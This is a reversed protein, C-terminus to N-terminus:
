GDAQGGNTRASWLQEHREQMAEIGEWKWGSHDEGFTWLQDSLWWLSWYLPRLLKSRKRVVGLLHWRNADHWRHWSPTPSLNNSLCRRGPAPIPIEWTRWRDGGSAQWRVVEFCYKTTGPNEPDEPCHRFTMTWYDRGFDSPRSYYDPGQMEPRDELNILVGPPVPRDLLDTFPETGLQSRKDLFSFDPITM